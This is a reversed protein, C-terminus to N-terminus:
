EGAKAPNETLYHDIIAAFAEAGLLLSREDVTFQPHHHPYNIVQEPIGAPILFFTGPIKQLYYAFDEGGMSPSVAEVYDAGFRSEFLEKLTDTTAPDNYLSPYGRCYTVTCQAGNAQAAAASMKSIETEFLDQMEPKFTRVSGKLHAKDAIINHAGEGATFASFSLVGKEIPDKKRSVITQLQQILLAATVVSDVSTHPSAGHGGIGQIEIDFRDSAAMAYEPCYKIKGTFKDNGIVHLGFIFDLDELKGSDVIGVAGGPHVEEAHQFIFVLKGTLEGAYKQAIRAVSLLIATHADHGCAHMVGPIQSQFELGTEEEIPLADFDARLGIVPGPKGTDIRAIIGGGGVETEIGTYGYCELEQQILQRTQKEQFSIEPYRHLTRRLAVTEPFMAKLDDTFKQYIM